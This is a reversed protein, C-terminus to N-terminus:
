FLNYSSEGDVVVAAGSEQIRCPAAAVPVSSNSSGVINLRSPSMLELPVPPLTSLSPLTARSPPAPKRGGSSVPLSSLSHPVSIDCLLGRAAGQSGTCEDAIPCWDCREENRKRKRKNVVTETDTDLNSTYEAQQLKARAEEYNDLITISLFSFIICYCFLFLLWVWCNGDGSM